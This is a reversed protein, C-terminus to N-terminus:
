ITVQYYTEKIEVAGDFEVAFRWAEYPDYFQYIRKRISFMLLTALINKM